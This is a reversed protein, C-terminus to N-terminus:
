LAHAVSPATVPYTAYTFVSRYAARCPGQTEVCHADNFDKTTAVPKKAGHTEEDKREAVFCSYVQAMTSDGLLSITSSAATAPATTITTTPARAPDAGALCRRCSVIRLARRRSSTRTQGRRQEETSNGESRWAEEKTAAEIQAREEM